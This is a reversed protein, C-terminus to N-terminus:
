PWCRIGTASPTPSGSSWWCASARPWAWATPRPRSRRAADTPPWPRSSPSASWAARRPWSPPEAPWPWPASGPGCRPWRWTCRWRPPPCATDITVAPGELGLTYSIRGSMVSAATGTMMHGALEPPLGVGYGSFAAGVYVGTASGRLTAPDFGGRELAEWSTELLLRQQPDMPLAERPSIGFFEPDFCTAGGIFGGQGTSVGASGSEPDALGAVDWGRDRPLPSIADTGTALLEWLGEPDRVDGPFRCSMAVIAIPEGAAAAVAPAAAAPASDGLLRGRLHDALASSSPHDFVVTAPLRLGTATSLRNRLEVSTLSDFGLERFARRPEVAEPSAHGLVAAVHGRVLDLLLRDRDAGTLGALQQRLTQAAPGAQASGVGALPPRAPGGTLARWLPALGAGRAAQARIAAVDIRAPVLLADDRTLALDLLGLGQEASLAGVGGQAIRDIDQASLNETMGSADAWLGWALSVAPLGAALRHAALADLFANGAAYNGQGPAGFTAAGASFLVFVDLDLGLERTTRHLNWAADAKPRLVADTRAPTLSEIVGDDLVGATHIVGTPRTAALVATLGPRDADGALISVALGATALEAALAAAGRAAPGSRSTLVARTARGTAALHRAVLGGLTGTGGTILVTGPTRAAAPDPPVTLVIKGIHRAQSMFRFAEPARRVDWVRMPLLALTGAEALATTQALIETLREPAADGTVFARYDVGPHDRAVQERDRVDTKGMELFTGGGTLLRLSADTLEGALANLVIDMGRGDTADLFAAEFGADRSSAIHDDDLGMARLAPWKAPGATAYVELGLHRAVAVAATGVGGAAAHVLLRQGPRAAALDVLAYWATSYAIPVTAAEAFSWGSPMRTLLRADTAALPGAAGAAMGLVRDGVAVHTVGPGTETVVGAIETGVLADVPYMGLAILVDRFNLGVARVAVRAEGHRLPADAEPYPM